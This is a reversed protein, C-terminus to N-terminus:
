VFPVPSRHRATHKRGATPAIQIFDLYVAKTQKTWFAPMATASLLPSSREDASDTAFSVCLFLPILALFSRASM